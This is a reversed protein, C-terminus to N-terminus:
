YNGVIANISFGVFTISLSLAKIVQLSNRPTTGQGMLLNWGWFHGLVQVKALYHHHKLLYKVIDFTNSQFKAKVNEVGWGVMSRSSTGM